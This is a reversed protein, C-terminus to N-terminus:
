KVKFVYQGKAVNASTDVSNEGYANMDSYINTSALLNRQAIDISGGGADTRLTPKYSTKSANEDPLLFPQAAAGVGKGMVDGDSQADRHQESYENISGQYDNMMELQPRQQLGEKELRSQKAM